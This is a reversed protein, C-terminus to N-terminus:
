PYRRLNRPPLRDTLVQNIDVQNIDRSCYISVAGEDPTAHFETRMARRGFENFMPELRHCAAHLDNRPSAASEGPSNDLLLAKVAYRNEFVRGQQTDEQQM